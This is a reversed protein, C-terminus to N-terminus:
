RLPRQGTASRVECCIRDRGIKGAMVSASTFRTTSATVLAVAYAPAYRGARAGALGACAATPGPRDTNRELEDASTVGVVGFAIEPRSLVFGLAAALPTSGAKALEARLKSLPPGASSLHPPLTEMLMLGQLFLSRAHIEVGIAKLRALSGDALLRQDLLSFPLQM